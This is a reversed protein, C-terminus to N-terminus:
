QKQLLGPEAASNRQACAVHAAVLACGVRLTKSFFTLFARLTKPLRPARMYVFEVFGMCVVADALLMM